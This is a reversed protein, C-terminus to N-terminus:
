ATLALEPNDTAAEKEAARKLQRASKKKDRIPMASKDDQLMQRVSKAIKMLNLASKRANAASKKKKCETFNYIEGKLTALNMELEKVVVEYKM